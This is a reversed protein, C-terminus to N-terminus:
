TNIPIRHKRCRVKGQGYKEVNEIYDRVTTIADNINEETCVVEYGYGYDVEVDWVDRTKRKYM